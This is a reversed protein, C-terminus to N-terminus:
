SVGAADLTRELEGVDVRLDARGAPECLLYWYELGEANAQAYFCRNVSDSRHLEIVTADTSACMNALGAGHPGLITEAEAFARMQGELDLESALLTEFGREHLVSTLEDENSVRRHAADARSVYLRRDHRQPAPALRERLWGLGWRPPNGTPAVFSPFILEDAAIHGGYYPRRREPPVGVLALSADQARSLPAPVLVETEPEEELPLLAARPLVDLLWHYWNGAWPGILVMLPGSKRKAFPLRSRMLQHAQLHSDDFASERLARLDRTLVLPEGGAVRGDPLSVRWAPWDEHSWAKALLEDQDGVTRGPRGQFREAERVAVFREPQGLEDAVYERASDLVGTVRQRSLPL